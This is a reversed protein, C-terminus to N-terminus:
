IDVSGLAEARQRTAQVDFAITFGYQECITQLATREYVDPIAEIERRHVPSVVLGVRGQKVQSLILNTAETELRNRLLHQDDFPRSLVCVDLYILKSKM